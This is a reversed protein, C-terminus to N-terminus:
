CEGAQDVKFRRIPGTGQKKAIKHHNFSEDDRNAEEKEKEGHRAARSHPGFPFRDVM